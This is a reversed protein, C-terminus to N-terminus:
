VVGINPCCNASLKAYSLFDSSLLDSSLLDSGFSIVNATLFGFRNGGSWESNEKHTQYHNQLTISAGTPGITEGLAL